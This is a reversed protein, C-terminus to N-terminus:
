SCGIPRRVTWFISGGVELQTVDDNTRDTVFEPPVDPSDLIRDLTAAARIGESQVVPSDQNNSRWALRSRTERGNLEPM